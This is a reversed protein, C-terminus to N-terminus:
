IVSICKEKVLVCLLPLVSLFGTRCKVFKCLSWFTKIELSRQNVGLYHRSMSIFESLIFAYLELLSDVQLKPSKPKIGPNPLNGPPFCPLGSWYAQRSFGWPCLLRTPQLGRPQLSDSVVSRSLLVAYVLCDQSLRSHRNGTDDSCSVRFAAWGSRCCM